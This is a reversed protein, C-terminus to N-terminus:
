LNPKRKYRDYLARRMTLTEKATQPRNRTRKESKCRSTNTLKTRKSDSLSNAKQIKQTPRSCSAPTTSKNTKYERKAKQQEQEIQNQILRKRKQEEFEQQMKKGYKHRERIKKEAARTTKDIDAMEDEFNKMKRQGKLNWRNKGKANGGFPIAAKKYKYYANVDNEVFNNFQSQAQDIDIIRHDVDAM